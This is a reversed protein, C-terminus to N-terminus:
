REGQTAPRRTARLLVGEGGDFTIGAFTPGREVEGFGHREHVVISSVNRANVVSWMQTASRWTWDVLDALMRDAAGRRRFTPVVTLASVYYGEPADVHGIWRAAMAWGVVTGDRDAVLVRRALDGVWGAVQDAYGAAQPGRTRAVAVIGAVDAPEAQRVVIRDDVMGQADPSYPAFPPM